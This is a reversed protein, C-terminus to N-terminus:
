ITLEIQNGEPDEIVSEYYGDGTTRPQGTVRFGDEKLKETMADVLRKSGVSIAMHALGFMEFESSPSRIIDPRHMLELRTGSESSLFYSTFKKTENHYREGAKFGFYQEYFARMKELDRVWMAIHEIKM